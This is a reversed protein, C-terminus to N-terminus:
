HTRASQRAALAARLRAIAQTRLQSVRSESVNLVEGIEALTLEEEYYLSLVERERDPIEAIAAALRQRLEKRELREFQGESPDVAAELLSEEGEGGGALRVTALEAARVEDLTREYDPMSLDLAAAIEEAAPERC